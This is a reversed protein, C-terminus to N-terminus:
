RSGLGMLLWGTRASEPLASCSTELAAWSAPLRRTIVDPLTILGRVSINRFGAERLLRELEDPTFRFRHLRREGAGYFGEKVSGDQRTRRNWPYVAVLCKGGPKLSAYLSRLAALREHHSAIQEITEIAYASDFPGLSKPLDCIDCAVTEINRIRRAEAGARLVNLTNEAFDACVLRAVKPAFHMAIRGVGAGADLVVQDKRPRLLRLYTRAEAWLRFPGRYAVWDETKRGVAGINRNRKELDKLADIVQAPLADADFQNGDCPIQDLLKLSSQETM